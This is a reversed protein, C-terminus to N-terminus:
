WPWSPLSSLSSAPPAVPTRVPLAPPVGPAMLALTARPALPVRPVPQALLALTARPAWPAAPEPKVAGAPGAPGQAGRAGSSGSPGAPGGPGAPGAAGAAGAAGPPGPPGIRGVSQAATASLEFGRTREGSMWSDLSQSAKVGGVMFTVMSGSPNKVDIRYSGGAKVMASGVEMEGAHATIETGTAPTAGNVMAMGMVVHPPEQQALATMPLAALMAVIALLALIRSVKAM